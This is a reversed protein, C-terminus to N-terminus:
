LCAYFLFSYFEFGSVTPNSSLLPIPRSLFHVHYKEARQIQMKKDGTFIMFSTLLFYM